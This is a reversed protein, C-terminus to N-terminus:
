TCLRSVGSADAKATSPVINCYYILTDQPCVANQNGGTSASIKYFQQVASTSKFCLILIVSLMLVLVKRSPSM